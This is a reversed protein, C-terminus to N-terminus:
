TYEWQLMLIHIRIYGMLDIEDRMAISTLICIKICDTLPTVYWDDGKRHRSEILPNHMSSAPVDFYSEQPQQNVICLVALIQESREM